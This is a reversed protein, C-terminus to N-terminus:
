SVTRVRPKPDVLGRVGARELESRLRRLEDDEADTRAADAGLYEYRSLDRALETPPPNTIGFLQRYLDTATM